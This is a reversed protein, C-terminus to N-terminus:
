AILTGKCLLSANIFELWSEEGLYAAHSLLFSDAAVFSVKTLPQKLTQGGIMCDMFKCRPDLISRGKWITRAGLREPLGCGIEWDFVVHRGHLLWLTTVGGEATVQLRDMDSVESRNKFAGTVPCLVVSLCLLIAQIVCYKLEGWWRFFSLLTFKQTGMLKGRCYRNGLLCSSPRAVIILDWSMPDQGGKHVPIVNTNTHM